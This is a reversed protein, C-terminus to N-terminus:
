FHAFCRQIEVRFEFCLLPGRDVVLEFYARYFDRTGLGKVFGDVSGSVCILFSDLIVGTGIM